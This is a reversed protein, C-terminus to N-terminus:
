PGFGAQKMAELTEPWMCMTGGVILVEGKKCAHSEWRDEGYRKGWKKEWRRKVHKVKPRYAKILVPNVVHIKYPPRNALMGGHNETETRPEKTPGESFIGGALNTFYDSQKRAHDRIVQGLWDQTLSM